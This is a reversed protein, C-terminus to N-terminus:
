GPAAGARVGGPDGRAPRRRHARRHAHRGLRLRHGARAPRPSRDPGADVLPRLRDAHRRHAAGAVEFWPVYGPPARTPAKRPRSTSRATPTCFRIRTLVNIIFRWRDAGRCRRREWRLPENGYMAAPLRRARESRLMRRSRAPSRWRRRWRGVAARRRRAGAALRARPRGLPRQRLWDLWADREPADLMTTAAHRQPAGAARRRGRRAPAPRPQRAPLQGRRRARAPAAARALVAPRPQGPRGARAPPRAVALLRDRRAPARLADCCGQLDGILYHM